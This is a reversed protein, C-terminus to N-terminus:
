GGFAQSQPSWILFLQKVYGALWAPLRSHPSRGGRAMPEGAKVDIVRPGGGGNAGGRTKM